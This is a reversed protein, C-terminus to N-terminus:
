IKISKRFGILLLLLCLGIILKDGVRSYLTQYHYTPIEIHLAGPTMQSELPNDGLVKVIRGLSDVGGTVGTNCARLLPIGNEVTRLRSHDFHQQPLQSQPYWGDNTLNVLLQAGLVRNERMLDGYMEEYCISPGFPVKGQFLKASKGSTFSGTIGYRAAMTQCFEFPIYEGMPVLVRKEYRPIHQYQDPTFHFAASYHEALMPTKQIADELGIVVDANYLNAMTQVFFANSVLWESEGEAELKYAYPENLPPFFSDVQLGFLKHFLAQADSLPFISYYTGYPVVNEPLVILDFTQNLYPSALSFIQKWENLVFQRVEEGSRFSVDEEIAFAPQILLASLTGKDKEMAQAHYSLHIFGFLYPFIAILGWAAMSRWRFGELWVKLAFLNTCMVWFSLFYIGGISALQLPYLSSTLSLGVPNFPLGTLIFLRTWEFITWLGAVACLRSISSFLSRQIFLAVFGFPIGTIWGCLLVVGYIYLFPHSIMWSLQVAQVSAYWGAAVFFRTSKIPIDLLVRWFLALGVCASILGLWWGWVPQGFAVLLFSFLGLLIQKPLTLSHNNM